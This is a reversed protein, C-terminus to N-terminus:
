PADDGQHVILAGGCGRSQGQSAEELEGGDGGEGDVSEASEEHARPSAWSRRIHGATIAVYVRCVYGGRGGGGKHLPSEPPDYGWRRRGYPARQWPSRTGPVRERAMGQGRQFKLDGIGGRGARGPARDNGPVELGQFGTGKRAAALRRDGRGEFGEVLPAHWQETLLAKTRSTRPDPNSRPAAGRFVPLAPRRGPTVMQAQPVGHPLCTSSM